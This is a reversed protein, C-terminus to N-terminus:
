YGSTSTGTTVMWVVSRPALGSSISVWTVLTMSSATLVASPM